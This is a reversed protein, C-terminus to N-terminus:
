RHSPLWSEAADPAVAGSLSCGIALEGTRGSNPDVMIAWHSVGADNPQLLVSGFLAHLRDAPDGASEPAVNVVFTDLERSIGNIYVFSRGAIEVGVYQRHYDSLYDRWVVGRVVLKEDVVPAVMSDVKSMLRPPIAWGPAYSLTDPQCGPRRVQAAFAPAVAVVIPLPTLRRSEVVGGLSGGDPTTSCAAVFVVACALTRIRM